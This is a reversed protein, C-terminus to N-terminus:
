FRNKCIILIKACIRSKFGDPRLILNELYLLVSLSSNKLLCLQGPSLIYLSALVQEPPVNSKYVFLNASHFFLLKSNEEFTSSFTKFQFLNITNRSKPVLHKIDPRNSDKSNRICIKELISNKRAPLM